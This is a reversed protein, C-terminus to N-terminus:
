LRHLAPRHLPCARLPRAPARRQRADCDALARPRAAAGDRECRGRCYELHGQHDICSSPPATLRGPYLSAPALLARLPVCMLGAYKGKWSDGELLAKVDPWVAPLVTKGGLGQALRDLGEEGFRSWEEEEEEADEEDEWADRGAWDDLDDSLRAILELCLRGAVKIFPEGSPFVLRRLPAPKSDALELM